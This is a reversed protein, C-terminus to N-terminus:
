LRKDLENQLIEIWAPDHNSRGEEIMAISNILHNLTMDKVRIERGDKTLWLRRKQRDYDMDEWDCQDMLLQDILDDAMEGM